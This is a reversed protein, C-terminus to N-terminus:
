RRRKLIGREEAMSKALRNVNVRVGTKALLGRMGVLTRVYFLIERPPSWM